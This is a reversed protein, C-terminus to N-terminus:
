GTFPQGFYGTNGDSGDVTQKGASVIIEPIFGEAGDDLNQDASREIAIGTGSGINQDLGNNVFVGPKFGLKLLETRGRLSKIIDSSGRMAAVRAARFILRGGGNIYIM